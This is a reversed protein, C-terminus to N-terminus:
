SVKQMANISKSFLVYFPGIYRAGDRELSIYSEQALLADIKDLAESANESLRSHSQKLSISQHQNPSKRCKHMGPGEM